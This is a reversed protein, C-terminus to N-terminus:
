KLFGDLIGCNDPFFWVFFGELSGGWCLIWDLVINVMLFGDFGDWFGVGVLFYFLIFLVMEFFGDWFKGLFIM